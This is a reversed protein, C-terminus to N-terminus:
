RRALIAMTAAAADATFRRHEPRQARAAPQRGQGEAPNPLQQPAAAGLQLQVLLVHKVQWVLQLRRGAPVQQPPAPQRHTAPGGAATARAHLSSENFFLRKVRCPIREKLWM